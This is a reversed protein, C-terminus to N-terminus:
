ALWEADWYPYDGVRAVLGARMPNAVIYRAAALTTDDRRLARDHFGDAWVRKGAMVDRIAHASRGKAMGVVRAISTTGTLRVLGHWHDPMLVWCLLEAHPSWLSGHAIAASM